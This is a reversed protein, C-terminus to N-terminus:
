NFQILTSMGVRFGFDRPSGDEFSQVLELRFLKFIRDISYGIETYHPSNTTKLHNLIINEKIGLLRMMPLQTLMFKRLNIYAFGAAYQDQTSYQYYDLLRFNGILQIPAIETLGGNFHKFDAFMVRNNSLFTGVEAEFDVSARVGIDFKTKLGLEVQQFNSISEGVNDWGANWTARLKLADKNLPSKVGNRSVYKMFPQASFEVQTTFANGNLILDPEKNVEPYNPVIEKDGPNFWTFTTNNFLERRQSYETGVTFDYKYQHRYHYQARAFNHEYLRMFNQTLLLTNVSNVFSNISSPHFQDIYRGGQLSYNHQQWESGLFGHTKLQYYVDDSEFGYRVEPTFKLRYTSDNKWNLTGEFSLNFGEIVNYRLEPLFGRFRFRANEGLRYTNGMLLDSFHVPSGDVKATSDAKEAAYVSDVEQYSVVEKETLAIPRKEAWYLSDKKRALSDIEFWITSEVHKEEEQEEEQKEYEKLVQRLQKRTLQTEEPEQLQQVSEEEIKQEEIETPVADIKEDLITLEASLEPNPTVSYKSVLATYNYQGKFGMMAGSFNIQQNTPMWIDGEVLNYIQDIQVLFSEIRTKLSLSHINWAGDRIYIVGEFVQEGRSRPTVKIKNIEFGNEFYSGLFKFRYYSFARPSLPSVSGVVTPFYFSSKVYSNPSASMDEPGSTRISIVKEKYTNPREYEIESISESTYVKSTDIGEKELTGRLLWPIKDLKGTGKLYVEASYKDVQLQHFKAKSIAKRMITYAPDEAKGSVDVTSLVFSQPEMVVTIKQVQQAVVVRKMVQKYGLHQFSIQYSGAPLNLKFKGEGSSTTGTSTGQVFVATYPLPEGEQNVIVGEVGQSFSTISALLLVLFSFLSLLKMPRSKPQIATCRVFFSNTVFPNFNVAM